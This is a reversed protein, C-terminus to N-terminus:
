RRLFDVANRMRKTYRNFIGPIVRIISAVARMLDNTGVRSRGAKGLIVHAKSGINDHRIGHIVHVQNFTICTRIM